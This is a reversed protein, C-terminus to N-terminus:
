LQVMRKRAGAIRRRHVWGSEPFNERDPAYGQEKLGFSIQEQNEPHLLYKSFDSVNAYSESDIGVLNIHRTISEGRHDISVMAPVHVVTTMGELDDGVVQRIRQQIAEH